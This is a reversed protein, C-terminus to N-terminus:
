HKKNVKNYLNFFDDEVDVISKSLREGQVWIEDIEEAPSDTLAFASGTTAFALVAAIVQYLRSMRNASM